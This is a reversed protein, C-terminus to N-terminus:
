IEKIKRESIQFITGDSSAAVIREIEDWHHIMRYMQKDPKLKLLAPAMFFGVIGAAKFAAREAHNRTIRMDGSM